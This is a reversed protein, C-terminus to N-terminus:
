FQKHEGNNLNNKSWFLNKSIPFLDINLICSFVKEGNQSNLEGRNALALTTQKFFIFYVKKRFIRFKTKKCSVAISAVKLIKM